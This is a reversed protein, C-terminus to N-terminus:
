QDNGAKRRWTVMVVLWLGSEEPIAIAIPFLDARSYVKNTSDRSRQPHQRDEAGL